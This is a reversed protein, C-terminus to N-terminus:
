GQFNYLTLMTYIAQFPGVSDTRALDDRSITETIAFAVNIPIKNLHKANRQMSYLKDGKNKLPYSLWSWIWVLFLYFGDRMRVLLRISSLTIRCVSDTIAM